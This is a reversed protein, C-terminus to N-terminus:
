RGLALQRPAQAVSGEQQDAEGAAEAAGFEGAEIQAIRGERGITQHQEDGAGLVVLLAV